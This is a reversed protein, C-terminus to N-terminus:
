DELLYDIDETFEITISMRPLYSVNTVVQHLENVRLVAPRNLSFSDVLKCKDSEYYWYPVGVPTFKRIPDIDTTYFNTVSEACNLIPVNIRVNKNTYDRHIVTQENNVTILSIRSVTIGMPDFMKQIEPFLGLVEETNLNVWSGGLPVRKDLAYTKFKEAVPLFDLDLYKYYRM